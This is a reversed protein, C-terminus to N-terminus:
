LVRKRISSTATCNGKDYAHAKKTGQYHTQQQSNDLSTASGVKYEHSVDNYHANNTLTFTSM